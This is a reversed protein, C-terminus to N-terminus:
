VTGPLLSMLDDVPNSNSFPVSAGGALHFITRLEVGSCLKELPVEECPGVAFRAWAGLRVPPHKDVGLVSFGAKHCEALLYGGLFGAGGTILVAGKNGM